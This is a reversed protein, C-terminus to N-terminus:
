AAPELRRQSRDRRAAVMAAVLAFTLLIYREELVNHSFLGWFAIFLTFPVVIRATGRDAGGITALLLAPFIFLGGIGHEAMLALYINHPGVVFITKTTAGTGTGALPHEAFTAWALRAVTEREEASADGRTGREFFALRDIVNETLVGREELTTQLDAWWPSLLLLLLAVGAAGLKLVSTLRVGGQVWIVLGVMMWGLMAARSFTPLVGIGTAILYLARFRSPVAGYGLLLGLVVAAGAQNVNAFLGTSRGPIDSFTMPNFLEYINLASTLLTAAVVAQRAAWQAREDAFLFLMLLLFIVSLIRTQVQQWALASQSSPFFWLFSIALYGLSWILIPDLRLRGHLAAVALLPTSIGIFGVVWMLPSLGYTLSYSAINTFFILVAATAVLVRYRPLSM